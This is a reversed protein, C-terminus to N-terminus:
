AALLEEVLRELGLARSGKVLVVNDKGTLLARIRRVIDERGTDVFGPPHVARCARIAREGVPLIKDIGLRGAWAAIEEHYWASDRGLDLMDGYIFLRRASPPGSKALVQLAARTSDPNANYTDDLITGFPAPLPQLRHPVPRFSPTRQEVLPPPVGLEIATLAALLLNVANHRGLLPANLVLKPDELHVELRPFERVLRGRVTGHDFGVTICRLSLDAARERLLPSDGDVVALGDHPLGAILSWKEQVVADVTLFGALHGPGVSTIIGVAPHLIGTLSGIEGPREAGLEFVGVEADSPMALLALPLGIETNYNKPATFTKRDGQLYHALLTRTTTKGNTGTVAILPARLSERWASALRQLAHLPDTVVLLNPADDPAQRPDSILAGCAGRRFAEGLFTHGDAHRGPLAVFLDGEEIDRSDHVFRAPVAKRVRLLRAGVIDAIERVEFM